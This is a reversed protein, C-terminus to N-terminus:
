GGHTRTARGRLLAAYALAGVAATSLVTRVINWAVWPDEFDARVAHPDAIAAPDGADHLTENLPINFAITTVASLAYLVLGATIWRPVAGGGRRRQAFVAALPVLFAGFFALFFVPNEIKENIRQMVDIYTRDDAGDLGPVIAVSFCFHVGAMLATLVISAILLADHGTRSRSASDTSTM